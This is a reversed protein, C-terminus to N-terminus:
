WIDDPFAIVTEQRLLCILVLLLSPDLETTPIQTM